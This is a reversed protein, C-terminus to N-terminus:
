VENLPPLKGKHRRKYDNIKEREWKRASEDSVAPGVPSMTSFKKNDDRHEQERRDLDNTIGYGVIAGDKWLRYRHTDRKQAM